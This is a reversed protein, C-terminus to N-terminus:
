QEVGIGPMFVTLLFLISAIYLIKGLGDLLKYDVLLALFLLGLGLCYALIQIKMSRTFVFGDDYATSGIVIISIVAFVLPIFLLLTDINKLLERFYHM